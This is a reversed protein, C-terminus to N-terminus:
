RAKPSHHEGMVQVLDIWYQNILDPGDPDPVQDALVGGNAQIVRISAVNDPDTSLLAKTVGHRALMPLAQRLAETAFGRGRASPRVYYGIHGGKVQLAENLQHRMRLMGVARADEVIWFITQPVRHDPVFTPDSQNVCYDLYEGLTMEGSGFPTGGFGNEGGGLELLMEALDRPPIASAAVLSLMVIRNRSQV